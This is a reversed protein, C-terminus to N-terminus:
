YETRMMTVLLSLNLDGYDDTDADDDGEEITLQNVTEDRVVM